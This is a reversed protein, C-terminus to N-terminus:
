HIQQSPQAPTALVRSIMETLAEVQSKFPGAVVAGSPIEIAIAVGGDVPTVIWSLGRLSVPHDDADPNQVEDFQQLSLNLIERVDDDTWDDPGSRDDEVTKVTVKDQGKLLVEIDFTM